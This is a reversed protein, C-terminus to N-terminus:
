MEQDAIADTEKEYDERYTKRGAFELTRKTESGDRVSKYLREFVPKNAKERGRESSFKGEVVKLEIELERPRASGKSIEQSM